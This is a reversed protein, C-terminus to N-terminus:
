RDGQLKVLSLEALPHTRGPSQILHFRQCKSNKKSARLVSPGCGWMGIQSDRLHKGAESSPDQEDERWLRVTGEAESDECCSLGEQAMLETKPVMRTQARPGGGWDTGM